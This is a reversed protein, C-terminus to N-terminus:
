EELAESVYDWYFEIAKYVTDEATGIASACESVTPELELDVEEVAHYAQVLSALAKELKEIKETSMRRGGRSENNVGVMMCSVIGM